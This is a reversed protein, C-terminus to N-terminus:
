RSISATLLLAVVHVVLATWWCIWAVFEGNMSGFGGVVGVVIGHLHLADDHRTPPARLLIALV